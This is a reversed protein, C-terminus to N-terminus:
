RRMVAGPNVHTTASVVSQQGLTVNKVLMFFILVGYATVIAVRLWHTTMLLHYNNLLLGNEPTALRAMLPGWWIATAAYLAIQLSLGTWLLGANVGSPRMWMMALAGLFVIGAPVFIVGWISHWWALHFNYFERKGVRTWLPYCSVQVLWIVGTSYWSLAAVVFLLWQSKAM